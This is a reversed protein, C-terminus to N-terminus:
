AAKMDLRGEAHALVCAECICSKRQLEAPVRALLKANFDVETCWCPPQKVGTEREIEMACANRQACLPCHSPDPSHM